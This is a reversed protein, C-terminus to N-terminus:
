CLNSKDGAWSSVESSSKAKTRPIHWMTCFPMHFEKKFFSSSCSGGHAKGRKGKSNDFNRNHLIHYPFVQTETWANWLLFGVASWWAVSSTCLGALNCIRRILHTSLTFKDKLQIYSHWCKWQIRTDEPFRFLKTDIVMSTQDSSSYKLM